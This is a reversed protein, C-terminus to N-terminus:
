PRMQPPRAYAHNLRKVTVTLVGDTYSARIGGMDADRDFQVSWEHHGLVVVFCFVCFTHACDAYIRYGNM